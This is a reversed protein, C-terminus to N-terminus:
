IEWKIDYPFNKQEPIDRLFERYKKIKEREKEEIPYDPLMYKDTELLLKDRKSRANKELEKKNKEVVFDIWKQSNNKIDEKIGVRYPITIRILDYSYFENKYLGNAENKKIDTCVVIECKNNIINEITIIEPKNNSETLM